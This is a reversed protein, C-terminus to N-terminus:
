KQQTNHFRFGYEMDSALEECVYLLSLRHKIDLAERMFIDLMKVSVIYNENMFIHMQCCATDPDYVRAGVYAYAAIIDSCKGICLPAKGYHYTVDVCQERGVFVGIYQEEVTEETWEVYLLEDAHKRFTLRSVNGM